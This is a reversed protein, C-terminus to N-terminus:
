QGTNLADLEQTLAEIEAELTLVQGRMRNLIEAQTDFEERSVVDLKALASQVLARLNKDVEGKLGRDGVIENIQQLVEGFPPPKFAM